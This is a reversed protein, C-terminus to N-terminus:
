FYLCMGVALPTQYGISLILTQWLPIGKKGFGFQYDFLLRNQELHNTLSECVIKEIKKSFTPLLSIPRFNSIIEHGCSKFLPIVKAVKKITPLCNLSLHLM